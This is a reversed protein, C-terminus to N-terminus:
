FYVSLVERFKEQEDTSKSLPRVCMLFTYVTMNEGQRNSRRTLILKICTYIYGQRIRDSVLRLYFGKVETFFHQFLENSDTLLAGPFSKYIDWVLIVSSM